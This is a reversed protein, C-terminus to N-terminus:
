LVLGKFVELQSDNLKPCDKSIITEVEYEKTSWEKELKREERILSRLDDKNYEYGRVSDKTIVAKTDKDELAYNIHLDALVENYEDFVSNLNIKIFKFVTYAFKTDLIKKDKRVLDLWTNNFEVMQKFTMKTKTTEM